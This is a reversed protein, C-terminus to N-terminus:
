PGDFGGDDTPSGPTARAGDQGGDAIRKTQRTIEVMYDPVDPDPSRVNYGGVLQVRGDQARAVLRQLETTFRERDMRDDTHRSPSMIYIEQSSPTTGGRGM